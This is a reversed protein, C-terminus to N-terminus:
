RKKLMQEKSLKLDLLSIRAYADDLKKSLMANTKNAVVATTLETKAARYQGISIETVAGNSGIGRIFGHPEVGEHSARWHHAWNSSFGAEEGADHCIGCYKIIRRGTKYPRFKNKKM